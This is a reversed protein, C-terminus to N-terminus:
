KVGGISKFSLDPNIVQSGLTFNFNRLFAAKTITVSSTTSLINKDQLVELELNYEVYELDNKQFIVSESQVSAYCDIETWDMIVTELDGTNIRKKIIRVKAKGYGPGTLGYLKIRPGSFNTILKASTSKSEGSM